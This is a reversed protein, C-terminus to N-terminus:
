RGRCSIVPNIGVLSAGPIGDPDETVHVATFGADRGIWGDNGFLGPPCLGAGAGALGHPESSVHVTSGSYSGQKTGCM